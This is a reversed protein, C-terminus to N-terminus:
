AKADSESFGSLKPQENRAASEWQPERTPSKGLIWACVETVLENLAEEDGFSASNFGGIAEKAMEQAEPPLTSDLDMDDIALKFYVPALHGGPLGSASPGPRGGSCNDVFEKSNDLNDKDFVFLRTKSQLIDDFRLQILRETDKANPSFDVGIAGVVNEAFAFITNLMEDNNFPMKGVTKDFIDNNDGRIQEAFSRAMSITQVFSFNNFSMFGIGDFEQGTAGMYITQLKCGLSHSLSYTPINKPYQRSADDECYLLARRLREGTQKALAFHDLGVQYPAAICVANLKNSVRSLLENYAIHPFTGLGAGGTFVIVCSPISNNPPELIWVYDEYDQPPPDNNSNTNSNEEGFPTEVDANDDDNSGEKPLFVKSWRSKNGKSRVQIKFQEDLRALTSTLESFNDGGTGGARLETTTTAFRRPIRSPSAFATCASLVWSLSLLTQLRHQQQRQPVM